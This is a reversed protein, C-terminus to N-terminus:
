ARERNLSCDEADCLRAITSAMPEFPTEIQFRTSKAGAGSNTRLTHSSFFAEVALGPRDWRSARHLQM